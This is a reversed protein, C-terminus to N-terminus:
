IAGLVSGQQDMDDAMARGNGVLNSNRRADYNMLYQRLLITEELLYLVWKRPVAHKYRIIEPM